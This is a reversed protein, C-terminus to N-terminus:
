NRPGTGNGAKALWVVTWLAVFILEIVADLLYIPSITGILVTTIDVVMLGLASGVGLVTIEFSPSRRSASFLACGIVAVLVGVTKVLWLDTKPGTVVQFSDVSVLPWLGTAFFYAGQLLCLVEYAKSRIM